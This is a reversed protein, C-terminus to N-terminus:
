YMYPFYAHMAKDKTTMHVTILHGVYTAAVPSDGECGGTTTNRILGDVCMCIFSGATNFCYEYEGCSESLCEDIDTCYSVYHCVNIIAFSLCTSQLGVVNCM